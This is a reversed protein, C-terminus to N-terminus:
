LEIMLTRHVTPSIGLNKAHSVCLDYEWDFFAQWRLDNCGMKKPFGPAFRKTKEISEKITQLENQTM